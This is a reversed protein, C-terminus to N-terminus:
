GRQYAHGPRAAADDPKTSCCVGEEGAATAKPLGTKSQNLQAASRTHIATTTSTSCHLPGRKRWRTFSEYSSSWPTMTVRLDSQCNVTQLNTSLESNSANRLAKCHGSTFIGHHQQSYNFPTALLDQRERGHRRISALLSNNVNYLVRSLSSQHWHILKILYPTVM